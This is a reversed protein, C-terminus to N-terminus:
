FLDRNQAIWIEYYTATWIWIVYPNLTSIWISTQILTLIWTLIQIQTQFLQIWIQILTWTGILILTSYIKKFIHLSKHITIPIYHNRQGNLDLDRERDFDRVFSLLLRDLDRDLDLDLDREFDGDLSASRLVDRDLDREFDFSSSSISAFVLSPWLSSFPALLGSGSSSSSIISFDPSQFYREHHYMFNNLSFINLKSIIM